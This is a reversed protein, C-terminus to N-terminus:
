HQTWNKDLFHLYITLFMLGLNLHLKERKKKAVWWTVSGPKRWDFHGANSTLSNIPIRELSWNDKSLISVLINSCNKDFFHFNNAYNMNNKTSILVWNKPCFNSWVGLLTKWTLIKIKIYYLSQFEILYKKPLQSSILGFLYKHASLTMISINFNTDFISIPM